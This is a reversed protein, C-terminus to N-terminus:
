GVDEGVGTGGDSSAHPDEKSTESFPACQKAAHSASDLAIPAADHVQPALGHAGQAHGSETSTSPRMTYASSSSLLLPLM